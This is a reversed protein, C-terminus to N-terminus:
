HFCCALFEISFHGPDVLHYLLFTPLIERTSPQVVVVAEISAKEVWGFLGGGLLLSSVHWRSDYNINALEREACCYSPEPGAEPVTGDEVVILEIECGYRDEARKLAARRLSFRQRTPFSIYMPHFFLKEIRISGIAEPVDASSPLSEEFVAVSGTDPQPMEGEPYGARERENYIAPQPNTDYYGYTVCSVITGGGIVLFMLMRKMM